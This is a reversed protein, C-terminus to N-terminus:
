EPMQARPSWKGHVPDFMQNMCLWNGEYGSMVFISGVCSVVLPAHRLQRMQSITTWKKTQLDYRGVDASRWHGGCVYFAGSTFSFWAQMQGLERSACSEMQIYWSRADLIRKNWEETTQWVTWLAHHWSTYWMCQILVLYTANKSINGMIISPRGEYSLM